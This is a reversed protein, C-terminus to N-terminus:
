AILGTPKPEMIMEAPSEIMTNKPREPRRDLRERRMTAMTSASTSGGTSASAVLAPVVQAAGVVADVSGINSSYPLGDPSIM